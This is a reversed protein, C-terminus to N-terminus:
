CSQGLTYPTKTLFSLSSAGGNPRQSKAELDWVFFEQELIQKSFLFFVFVNIALDTSTFSFSCAVTREKFLKLVNASLYFIGQVMKKGHESIAPGLTERWSNLDVKCFM